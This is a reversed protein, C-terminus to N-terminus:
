PSPAKPPRGRRPPRVEGLEAETLQAEPLGLFRFAEVRFRYAQQLERLVTRATAPDLTRPHVTVVKELSAVTEGLELLDHVHQLIEVPKLGGDPERTGDRLERLLRARRRETRGDLAGRPADTGLLTNLRRATRRKLVAEPSGRRNQPKPDM